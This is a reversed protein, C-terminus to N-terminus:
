CPSGRVGRVWARVDGPRGLFLPGEDAEDYATSQWSLGPTLHALMGDVDVVIEYLAEGLLGRDDSEDVQEWTMGDPPESQRRPLGRVELLTVSQIHDESNFWEDEATRAREWRRFDGYSEMSEDALLMRAFSPSLPFTIEDPHVIRLRLRVARAEQAEVIVTYLDSM